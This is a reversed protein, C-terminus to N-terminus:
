LLVQAVSVASTALLAVLVLQRFRDPSVRAFLRDGTRWGLPIAAAGVLVMVAASVDVYGLVVFAAVAVLDQFWFVVQLTGRFRRPSLELAQLTLVLPPGNMGTSTLLVGSILGSGWQATPGAPVPVRLWLLIVLAAIAGAILLTLSSAELWALVLLGLPLGLFGSLTMRTAVRRDVHRRERYAALTTLLLGVVTTTVVATVPDILLTLLPVAVLAFGFGTVAQAVAALYFVVLAAAALPLM